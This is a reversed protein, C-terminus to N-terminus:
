LRNPGAPACGGGVAPDYWRNPTKSPLTEDFARGTFAFLCDVAANTEDTFRGYADYTRHNAVTTADTQSDYTALDRVTNLHDVLPWVVDGPTALDTVSEDALIQDVAQGWLYRHSLDSAAADGSGSKDFQLAIQNGDYAFVTSSNATGDGDSDLSKRVLRNEHDYAYEVM